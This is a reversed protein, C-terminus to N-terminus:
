NGSSREVVVPIVRAAETVSSRERRVAPMYVLSIGLPPLNLSRVTLRQHPEVASLVLFCGGRQPDEVVGPFVTATTKRDISHIQILNQAGARSSIDMSYDGPKLVAAGWRVTSDLHFRGEFAAQAHASSALVMAAVVAIVVRNLQLTQHKM